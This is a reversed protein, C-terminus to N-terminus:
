PIAYFLQKVTTFSHMTNETVETYLSRKNGSIEDEVQLKRRSKQARALDALRYVLRQKTDWLGKLVMVAVRAEGTKLPGHKKSMAELKMREMNYKLLHAQM